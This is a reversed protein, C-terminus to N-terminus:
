KSVTNWIAELRQDILALTKDVNGMTVELRDLSTQMHALDNTKLANLKRSVVVRDVIVWVAVLLALGGLGYTELFALIISLEFM